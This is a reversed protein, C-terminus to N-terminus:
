FLKLVCTYILTCAEFYLKHMNKMNYANKMSTVPGVVYLEWQQWKLRPLNELTPSINQERSALQELFKGRCNWSKQQAKM